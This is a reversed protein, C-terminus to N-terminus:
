VIKLFLFEWVSTLRSVLRNHIKGVYYVNQKFYLFLPIFFCFCLLIIGHFLSRKWLFHPWVETSSTPFLSFQSSKFVLCFFDSIMEVALRIGCIDRQWVKDQFFITSQENHAATWQELLNSAWINEIFLHQFFDM